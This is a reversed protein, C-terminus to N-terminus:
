LEHGTKTKDQARKHRGFALVIGIILMLVLPLPWLYRYPEKLTPKGEIHYNALVKGDRNTLAVGEEDESIQIKAEFISPFLQIRNIFYQNEIQYTTSVLKYVYYTMSGNKYSKVYYNGSLLPCITDNGLEVKRKMLKPNVTNDNWFVLTDHMFVALGIHNKELEEHNLGKDIISRMEKDMKSVSRQFHRQVSKENLSLYFLLGLALGLALSLWCLIKGTKISRKDEM